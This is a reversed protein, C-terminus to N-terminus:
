VFNIVKKALFVEEGKVLVVNTVIKNMLISANPFLAHSELSPNALGTQNTRFKVTKGGM